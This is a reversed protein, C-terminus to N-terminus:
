KEEKAEEKVNQVVVDGGKEKIKEVANNSAYKATIRYKKTVNGTGLLKNCDFMSIDIIYFDGEKVIKKETILKDLNEEFYSINITKIDEVMGKKKFGHKGFVRWGWFSPKKADGRKGSGANGAGGKNGKSRHKKKAGWGHTQGGRFRVSKKRRHVVM